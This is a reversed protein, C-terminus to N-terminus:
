IALFLILASSIVVGSEIVAVGVNRGSALAQSVQFKPLLLLDILFRMVYLLVFGIIGFILFAAISEGWGTFDGFLAKFTVLGIAVLNGGFAVGVATNNGEIESHIDYPTTIQYFLAFAVLLALGLGFFALAILAANLETGAADGSIAGAIMLGTAVYMGLEAAGAGVNQGQVVEEELKFKYLIVRDMVLRVLNLAVIGALSYIFVRLVEQGYAQDFGLGEPGVLTPSQYLAGLFVLIVGALYGTLRLSVALNQKEGVEQDIKYPTIVDRALKALLLVVLGLGVFVLGRPFAQLTDIISEIM